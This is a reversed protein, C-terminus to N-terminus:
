QRLYVTQGKDASERAADLIEVVTMNNELSSLDTPKVTVKGEIVAKLYSFPSNYPTTLKPLKEITEDYGDYDKALRVRLEQSNDAYVAGTLGYIEMDKRGMPWNWSAQIITQSQAYTLVITAEDEVKPNFEPQFQQTVATVSLPKQGEMLWTSLNAGYCGFDIVVGGGNQVPDFLWELFEDHLGLKGPGKHGDRVIVKRIDGLEGSKIIDYAKYNSPYWSTEYNTLLQIQHKKALKYMKQAHESNVALPKEVMVHVGLPAMNEVVELHEYISGFAVAATPTVHKMMTPIDSYVKSMAFGFQKSLRLALASNSEVLGVIEIEGRKESEFVWALHVHTLGVVAIPLAKEASQVPLIVGIILLLLAAKKM